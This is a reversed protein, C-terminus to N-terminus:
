YITVYRYKVNRFDENSTTIRVLYEGKVYNRTNWFLFKSESSKDDVDFSSTSFMVGLEPIYARIRVDKLDNDFNNIVRAHMEIDSGQKVYDDFFRVQVAPSLAVIFFLAIILEKKM